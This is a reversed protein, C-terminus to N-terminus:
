VENYVMMVMNINQSNISHSIRSPYIAVDLMLEPNNNIDVGLSSRIIRKIFFKGSVISRIVVFVDHKKEIMDNIYSMYETYDTKMNNQQRFDSLSIKKYKM